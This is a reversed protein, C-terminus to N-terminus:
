SYRAQETPTSDRKKKYQRHTYQVAQELLNLTSGTSSNGTFLIKMLVTCSLGLVPFHSMIIKFINQFKKNLQVIKKNRKYLKLTIKATLTM